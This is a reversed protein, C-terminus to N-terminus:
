IMSAARSPNVTLVVRDVSVSPWLRVCVGLFVFAIGNCFQMSIRLAPRFRNAHNGRHHPSSSQCNSQCLWQGILMLEQILSRGCWDRVPLINLCHPRENTSVEPTARHNALGSAWLIQGDSSTSKTEKFRTSTTTWLSCFRLCVSLHKNHETTENPKSQHKVWWSPDSCPSPRCSTGSIM